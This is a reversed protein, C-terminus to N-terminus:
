TVTHKSELGARTNETQKQETLFSVTTPQVRSSDAFCTTDDIMM